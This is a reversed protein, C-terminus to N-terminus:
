LRIENYRHTGGDDVFPAITYIYGLVKMGSKNNYVAAGTIWLTQVGGLVNVDTGGWGSGSTKDHWIDDGSEDSYLAHVTTGDTGLHAIISKSGTGPNVTVPVTSITAEASATGTATNVSISKLNSSPNGFAVTVYEQGGWSHLVANTMPVYQSNTGGTDIRKAAGLTGSASLTRYFIQKTAFNNYIIHTVDGAGAVSVVQTVSKGTDLSVQASMAGTSKVRKRFGMQEGSGNPGIGYFMWVDGNSLGNMSFWQEAPESTNLSVDKIVWKDPNSPADSTNFAAYYVEGSSKQWGFYITTGVQELWYGELDSKQPRNAADIESWNAGHNTSKMLKPKNGAGLFDELVTYLNGNGDKYPGLHANAEPMVGTLSGPLGPTPVGTGSTPPPPTPTPTPTSTAGFRVAKGGSATADDVVTAPATIAGLEAEANIVGVNARVNVIIAGVAVVLGVVLLIRVVKASQRSSTIFDLIQQKAPQM